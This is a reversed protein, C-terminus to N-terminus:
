TSLSRALLEGSAGRPELPYVLLIFVMKSAILLASVLACILLLSSALGAGQRQRM